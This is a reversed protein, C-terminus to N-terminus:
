GSPPRVVFLSILMVKTQEGGSLTEFDRALLEEELGMRKIERKVKGEMSFGELDMYKQLVEPHDLEKEMTRFGGACEMIIDLTNNYDGTYNYPFYEVNVQKEIYGAEPLLDGSILKLFTTKGRGNRGIVGLKWDTDLNLTVNHFVKHYHPYYSFSLGTITIQSM